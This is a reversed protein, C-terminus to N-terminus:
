VGKSLVALSDGNPNWLVSTAAVTASQYECLMCGDGARWLCVAPTGTAVALTNEVPSWAWARVARLTQVVAVLRMDSVSWIWVAHPMSECLCALLSGDACFEASVGMKRDARHVDGPVVVRIAPATELDFRTRVRQADVLGTAASGIEVETFVDASAPIGQPRCALTALPRWTLHNLMRIKEDLGAVALLQGGPAWACARVGVVDETYPRKVAGGVDMVVVRFSGGVDWTALHFGDPSWRLGALDMTDVAVERVLTWSLTDYIGVVDHYDRRQAVAMFEGGPHFVPSVRAKPLQIYRREDADSISWISLRLDLESFTLIYRGSGAAWLASEICAVEDVISCRWTEDALSWVDVRNTAYSATFIFQSDPSWAVDQIFPAADYACSFVRHITKPSDSNRIILRHEVAVALYKGDPSFSVLNSNTQKYLDSFEM